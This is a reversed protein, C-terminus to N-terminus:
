PSRPSNAAPPTTQFPAIAANPVSRRAQQPAAPKAPPPKSEAAGTTAGPEPNMISVPPISSATPFDISSPQPAAPAAAPASAPAAVAVPASKQEWAAAYRTVYNEYTRAKLNDKVMTADRLLGFAECQDPTCNNRVALAHAVLGFRDAELARRLGALATAEYSRDARAAYAVGDALLSLRADIYSTAAAVAEPNAFLSKECASEVAEGATADLCALASGPLIARATLEAARADLARREAGREQIGSRDVFTWAAWAAIAVAAVRGLVSLWGGLGAGRFASVCAVVLLAALTGAAWLPLSVADTVPDIGLM